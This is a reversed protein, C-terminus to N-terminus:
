MTLNCLPIHLAGDFAVNNACGSCHIDYHIHPQYDPGWGSSYEDGPIETKFYYLGDGGVDMRCREYWLDVGAELQM